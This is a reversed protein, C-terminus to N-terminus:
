RNKADKIAANKEEMESIIADRQSIAKKLAENQM